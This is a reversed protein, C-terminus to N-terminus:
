VTTWLVFHLGNQVLELQFQGFPHPCVQVYGPSLYPIFCISLSPSFSLGSSSFSELDNLTEAWPTLALSVGLIGFFWSSIFRSFTFLQKTVFSFRAFVWTAHKVKIQKNWLSKIKRWTPKFSRTRPLRDLGSMFFLSTIANCEKKRWQLVTRVNELAGKFQRTSIICLLVPQM